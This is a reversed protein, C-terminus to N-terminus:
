DHTSTERMLAALRDMLGDLSHAALARERLSAGLAAREHSSIALLRLLRDALDDYTANESMALLKATDGLLPLFDPNSVLTPKGAFMGELAAKDFLGAPSLNVVIACRRLVAAAESHPLPGTFTVPPMPDLQRVLSKLQAPYEPEGKVPGGVILVRFPCDPSRAIVRSAARILWDQRKIHSLRALLVVEPPTNEPEPSTFLDAEVGHGMVILKNTKLPYSNASATLIRDVLAHALRLEPTIQRHTYWVWLPKHYLRAWPAAFLVYRPIMHCFIGDQQPALRRLLHTLRQAQAIRGTGSEKGMSYATVNLPLNPQASEQCIIDLHDLRAALAEVWRMVFGLQDDTTDLKQTIMLWRM